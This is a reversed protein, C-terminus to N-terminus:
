LCSTSLLCEPGKADTVTQPLSRAGGNAWVGALVPLLVVQVCCCDRVAVQVPEVAAASICGRDLPKTANGLRDIVM